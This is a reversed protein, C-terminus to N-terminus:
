VYCRVSERGSSRVSVVLLVFPVTYLTAVLSVLHIEHVAGGLVFSVVYLVLSLSCFPPLLSLGKFRFYSLFLFFKLRFYGCLKGFRQM